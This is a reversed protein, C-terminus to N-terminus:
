IAIWVFLIDFLYAGPFYRDRTSSVIAGGALNIKQPLNSGSSRNPTTKKEELAKNQHHFYRLISPVFMGAYSEGFVFFQYDALHDFVFFFNQFFAYLDGSAEFETQPEPLGYSFGTGWPHEVYLMTTAKTWTNENYQLDPTPKLCCFGAPRLPQTVPSHEMMVGCNFSSCGPGGNLWTVMTNDIQQEEPEFLWFMTMGERSGNDAPLRGAYMKGPFDAYAAQVKDLDKVLFDEKTVNTLDFPRDSNM